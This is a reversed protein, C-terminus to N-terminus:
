LYILQFDEGYFETDHNSDAWAREQLEQERTLKPEEWIAYLNDDTFRPPTSLFDIEKNTLMKNTPM